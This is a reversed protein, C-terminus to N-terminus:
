HRNTQRDQDSGSVAQKDRSAGWKQRTQAEAPYNKKKAHNVTLTRGRYEMSNLAQIVADAKSPNIDVFSYNDLIKISGIDERSLDTKDLIMGIIDRPFVRRNKGISMYLSEMGSHSKKRLKSKYYKLLYAPWMPASFYQCMKNLYGGTNM